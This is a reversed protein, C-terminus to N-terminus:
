KHNDTQDNQKLQQHFRRAATRATHATASQTLLQCQALIDLGEQLYHINENKMADHKDNNSCYNEVLKKLIATLNYTAHVYGASQVPVTQEIIPLARCYYLFALETDNNSAYISAIDGYRFGIYHHQPPLIEQEVKLARMLHDLALHRDGRGNHILALHGLIKSINTHGHEGGHISTEITLARNFYNFAQDFDGLCYYDLGLTNLSAARDIHNLPLLQERLKIYSFILFYTNTV